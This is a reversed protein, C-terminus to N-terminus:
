DNEADTESAKAFTINISPNQQLQQKPEFLGLTKGLLETAKVAGQSDFKFEGTEVM